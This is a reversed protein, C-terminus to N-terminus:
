REKKIDLLIKQAKELNSKGQKYNTDAIGKHDDTFAIEYDVKAEELKNFIQTLQFETLKYTRV